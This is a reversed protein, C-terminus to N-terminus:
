KAKMRKAGADADARQRRGFDAVKARVYDPQLNNEQVYQVMSRVVQESLSLRKNDEFSIDELNYNRRDVEM